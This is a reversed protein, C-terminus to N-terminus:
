FVAPSWAPSSGTGLSLEDATTGNLKLRVISTSRECAVWQGDPSISPKRESGTSVTLVKGAPGQPVGAANVTATFLDYLDSYVVTSLEASALSCWDPQTAKVLNDTVRVPTAGGAVPVVFLGGNAGPVAYPDSSFMVQTSDPSFTPSFDDMMGHSYGDIRVEGNVILDNFTLQRVTKDRVRVVYIRLCAADGTPKAFAIWQGDPSWSAWEHKESTSAPFTLQIPNAGNNDVQWLALGKGGRSSTLCLHQGDPSWCAGYNTGQTSTTVQTAGTGDTNMWFVQSKKSVVKDFAIRSPTAAPPPPPKAKGATDVAASTSNGGGCGALTVLVAVVIVAAIFCYAKRM